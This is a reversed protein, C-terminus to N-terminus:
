RVFVLKQNTSLEENILYNEYNFAKVDNL